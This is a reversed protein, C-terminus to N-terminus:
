RKNNKRGAGAVIKGGNEDLVLDISKAGDGVRLLEDAVASEVETEFLTRLARAGLVTDQGRKLLLTVCAFTLIIRIAPRADPLDRLSCERGGREDTELKIKADLRSTVEAFGRVAAIRRVLGILHSNLVNGLEASTLPSFVLPMGIRSLLEPPFGPLGLLSQKVMEAYGLMVNDHMQDDSPVLSAAGSRLLPYVLEPTSSSHAVNQCIQDLRADM